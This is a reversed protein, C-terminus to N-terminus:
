AVTIPKYNICFVCRLCFYLVFFCCPVKLNGLIKSFLVLGLDQGCPICCCIRCQSQSRGERGLLEQAEGQMGKEAPIGSGDCAVAASGEQWVARGPSM